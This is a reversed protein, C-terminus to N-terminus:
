QSTLPIGAPQVLDLILEVGNPGSTGFLTLSQDTATYSDFSPAQQGSTTGGSPLQGDEQEFALRLGAEELSLLDRRVPSRPALAPPVLQVRDGGADAKGM